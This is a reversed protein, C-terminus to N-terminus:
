KNRQEEIRKKKINRRKQEELEETGRSRKETTVRNKQKEKKRLYEAKETRQEGDM